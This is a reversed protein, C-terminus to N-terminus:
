SVKEIIDVLPHIYTYSIKYSDKKHPSGSWIPADLKIMYTTDKITKVVTGTFETGNNRTIKVTDGITM